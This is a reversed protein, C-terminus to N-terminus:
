WLSLQWSSRPAVGLPGPCWTAIRPVWVREGNPVPGASRAGSAGRLHQSGLYLGQYGCADPLLGPTFGGPHLRPAWPNQRVSPVAKDCRPRSVGTCRFCRRSFVLLRAARSLLWTTLPPRRGVHTPEPRGLAGGLTELVVPRTWAALLAVQHGTPSCCAAQEQEGGALCICPCLATPSLVRPRQAWGDQSARGAGM